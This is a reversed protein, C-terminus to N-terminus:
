GFVGERHEAVFAAEPAFWEPLRIAQGEYAAFNSEM